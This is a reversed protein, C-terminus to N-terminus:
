RNGRQAAEEYQALLDSAETSSDLCGAMGEALARWTDRQKRALWIDDLMETPTEWVVRDGANDLKDTM